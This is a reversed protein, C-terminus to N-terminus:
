PRSDVKGRLGHRNRLLFFVAEAGDLPKSAAGNAQNEEQEIDTEPEEHGSADHKDQVADYRAQEDQHNRKRDGHHHQPV